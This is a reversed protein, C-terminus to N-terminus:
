EKANGKLTVIIPSSEVNCYISITKNFHEPREAQYSIQLVGNRGPLIPEKPYDVTTCGCSTTIDNIVLPVNGTNQVNLSMTQKDKWSFSQMDLVTRDIQLSTQKSNDKGSYKNESLIKLYLDRVKNNYIPNGVAVVKNEENLLFTQFDSRQPFHNLLNLSDKEDICVPTTFLDAKLAEHLGREKKPFFFFLFQVSDTSTSDVQQMFKKWDPLQLRCRTCGTSDTYVLVKYQKKIPFDATDNGQVTFVNHSPFIIEKHEWEKLLTALQERNKNEKCSIFLLALLGYFCCKM